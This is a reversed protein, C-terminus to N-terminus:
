KPACDRIGNWMNAQSIGENAAIAMIRKWVIRAHIEISTRQLSNTPVAYGGPGIGTCVMKDYSETEKHYEAALQAIREEKASLKYPECLYLSEFIQKEM